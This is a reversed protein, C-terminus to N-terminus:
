EGLWEARRRLMQPTADQILTLYCTDLPVADLEVEFM